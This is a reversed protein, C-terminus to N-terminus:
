GAIDRTAMSTGGMGADIPLTHGVIYSSRSSALWLVADVIEEPRAMREIPTGKAFTAQMAEPLTTMFPTAVPGPAVANIRVGRTIYEVAAAKTLGVVGFKAATYASHHYSGILGSISATNVITGGGHDVMHAIEAQMCNFVGTLNM